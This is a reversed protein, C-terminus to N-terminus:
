KAEIYGYFNSKFSKTSIRRKKLLAQSSSYGNEDSGDSPNYGWTYIKFSVYEVEDLDETEKKEKNLLKLGGEYVVWHSDNTIDSYSYSVSDNIMDSDIMMIIQKGETFKSEIKQLHKLDSNSYKDYLKGGLPRKKQQILFESLGTMDVYKYGVMEKTMRKMMRPWNVAKLMDVSGTEVGKYIFASNLSEKSRTTALVIWDVYPMSVTKYDNSTPNMNYMEKAKPHPKIIYNGYQSEGKKHLQNALRQYGNPDKKTLLYFLSAMGCLSSSGQDIKWPSSKRRAIQQLVAKRDFWRFRYHHFVEEKAEQEKDELYAYFTIKKGCLELDHTKFTVEEGKEKFAGILVSGDDPMYTFGWNIENVNAPKKGNIYKKVKLKYEKGYIFGMKNNNGGNTSGEDLDLAEIEEVGTEVKYIAEVYINKDVVNGIFAYVKFKKNAKQTQIKVKVKGNEIKGGTFDLKFTNDNDDYSVAWNLQSLDAKKPSINLTALYFFSDEKKVYKVINGKTDYPGEVSLVDLKLENEDKTDLVVYGLGDENITVLYNTPVISDEEEIEIYVQEGPLINLTTVELCVREQKHAKVIVDNPIDNQEAM